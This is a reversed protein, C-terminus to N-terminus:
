MLVLGLCLVHELCGFRSRLRFGVEGVKVGAEQDTQRTAKTPCFNACKFKDESFSLPDTTVVAAAAGKKPDSTRNDCKEKKM